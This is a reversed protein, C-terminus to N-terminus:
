TDHRYLPTVPEVSTVKLSNEEDVRCEVIMSFRRNKLEKHLDALNDVVYAAAGLTGQAHTGALYLFAGKGDPRPLRGIYGYDSDEGRDRPSRYEIGTSEDFLFWEKGEERYRIHPDAEMVQSLFPLLRPNTLVILNPRNLHVIGPPPVVEQSIELGVTRATESLLEYATFCEASIMESVSKKMASERKAGIAVTIRGSGLFAREPRTGASLLQSIRSRSMGLADAIHTQSLGSALLEELAERRVRSLDAIATQHEDIRANAALARARPDPITRVDTAPDNMRADEHAEDLPGAPEAPRDTPNV